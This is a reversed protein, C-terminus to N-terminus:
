PSQATNGLQGRECAIYSEMKTTDMCRQLALYISRTLQADAGAEHHKAMLLASLSPALIKVVKKLGLCQKSTAPGADGGSAQGLWRGVEPSMTCFGRCDRRAIKAWTQSLSTLGCRRLERLIIGADFELQHATVCGGRKVVNDVDQMFDHLVVALPKGKQQADDHSIKHLQTVAPTVVFGSPQVLCSKVVLKGDFGAFAWGLQVIRLEDLDTEPRLTYWGFKGYRGKDTDNGHAPKAMDHTEIDFGMVDSSKQLDRRLEDPMPFPALHEFTGTTANVHIASAKPVGCM